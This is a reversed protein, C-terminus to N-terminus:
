AEDDDDNDDVDDEEADVALRTIYDRRVARLSRRSAQDVLFFWWGNTARGTISGAADSPSGYAVGDVEIRGNPLLTAVHSSFKPRRPFLALGPQLAGSAILDALHVKRRLRPKAQSFGSRHGEPVPWIQVITDSLESTRQRIADDTWHDGAKELLRRNLMLVDHAQLAQRKGEAGLWPGNSVRSNLKGTLLTLNGLTHIIEEREAESHIGEGLPWNATWKRPMVHEIAYKGRAVREGGLGAKAGTWGRMHDEIAELVMRLRGRGLRRYAVLHALEDRLERDDPWYAADSTQGALHRELVDGARERETGRVLRILEAVVQNYSKTTARVLMRRVMWSEVVELAKVFQPQPIAPEQPDLLCLVLPKIVESELVGTRYGFLSLRDVPGASPVAAAAFGRYVQSVDHIQHLLTGMPEGSDHDAFRKFRAFVERAVVEEGTRAILWHNLFISSRPYRVRGVSIETEWFGTEFERWHEQYAREVDTGTELLRQFIFNKILDAATLQAGRANLTEFIEQANEEAALDIIVMQLLERVVTEVAAARAQTCTPGELLLWERAQESFFRHAEVMREGRHGTADHNVPPPAGMVANFAARDRNTPWVKFRDEPKTCFPEANTVLPELRAAPGMAQASLLEAHLADLLLQLTTLRQQGDIITRAQMLGIANPVQQLVVAGLFHPQPKEHPRRLVREAVRVVDSWLPEWQNEQNWVYPRQFLPVVLRQPQM